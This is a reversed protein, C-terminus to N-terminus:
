VMQQFGMKIILLFFIIHEEVTTAPPGELVGTTTLQTFSFVARINRYCQIIIPTDTETLNDFDIQGFLLEKPVEPAAAASM